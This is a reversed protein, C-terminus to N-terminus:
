PAPLTKLRSLASRIKFEIRPCHSNIQFENLESLHILESVRHNDVSLHLVYVDDHGSWQSEDITVGSLKIGLQAALNVAYERIM